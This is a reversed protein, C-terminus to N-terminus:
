TTFMGAKADGAKMTILNKPVLSRRMGLTSLQNMQSRTMGYISASLSGRTAAGAKVIRTTARLGSLKLTDFGSGGFSSVSGDKQALSITMEIQRQIFSM